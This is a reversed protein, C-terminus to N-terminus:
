FGQPQPQSAQIAAGVARLIGEGVSLRGRQGNPVVDAAFNVVGERDAQRLASIMADIAANSQISKIYSLIPSLRIRGQSIPRKGGSDSKGSDIMEKLLPVSADGLALYMAKPATGVHIKLSDGLAMRAEEAQPPIDIEILHMSVGSHSAVDFQFSPGDPINELKAALDKVIAAAESGDAIAAGYVFQLNGADAMLLAGGDSKGESMSDVMLKVVRDVMEFIQEKIEPPMDNGGSEMTNKLM